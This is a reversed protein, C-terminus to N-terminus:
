SVGRSAKRGMFRMFQDEVDEDTDRPSKRHRTSFAQVIKAEETKFEPLSDLFGDLAEKIEKSKEEGFDDESDDDEWGENMSSNEGASMDADSLEEDTDLDHVFRHTHPGEYDLAEGKNTEVGAAFGNEEGQNEEPILVMDEPADADNYFIWSKCIRMVSYSAPEKTIFTIGYAKLRKTQRLKVYM